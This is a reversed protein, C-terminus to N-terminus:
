RTPHTEHHAASDDALAARHDPGAASGGAPLTPRCPTNTATSVRYGAAFHRQLRRHRHGFLAGIGAAVVPRAFRVGVRLQFTIRDHVIAKTSDHPTVSREHQWRRMSLMTSEERFARGPQLEAITLRDYDFPLVGFLRLWSRGIPIGIPVNDVTMSEAGRRAADVDDDDDDDM